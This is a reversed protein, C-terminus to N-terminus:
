NSLAEKYASVVNHQAVKIRRYQDLMASHDGTQIYTELIDALAGEVNVAVTEDGECEDINWYNNFIAPITRLKIMSSPGSCWDSGKEEFIAIANPNTRISDSGKSAYSYCINIKKSTRREYEAKFEDSLNFGGYCDNYLIKITTSEPVASMTSTLIVGAFV